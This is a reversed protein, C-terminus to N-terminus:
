NMDQLHFGEESWGGPLVISSCGESVKHSLQGTLGLELDWTKLCWPSSPQEKLTKSYFCNAVCAAQIATLRVTGPFLAVESINVPVQLPSLLRALRYSPLSIQRRNKAQRWPLQVSGGWWLTLAVWKGTSTNTSEWSTHMAWYQKWIGVRKHNLKNKKLKGKQSM